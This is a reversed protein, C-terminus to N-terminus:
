FQVSEAGYRGQVRNRYAVEVEDWNAESAAVDPFQSKIEPELRDISERYLQLRRASLRLSEKHNREEFALKANDPVDLFQQYFRDFEDLVTEAALQFPGQGPTTGSGGM